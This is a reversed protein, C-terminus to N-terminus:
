ADERGLWFYVLPGILEGLVIVVGWLAKYGGRVRREPRILDRLALVMLALQLILLPVLIPLLEGITMVPDEGWIDTPV